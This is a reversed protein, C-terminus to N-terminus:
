SPKPNEFGFIYQLEFYTAKRVKVKYDQTERDNELLNEIARERRFIAIMTHFGSQSPKATKDEYVIADYNM